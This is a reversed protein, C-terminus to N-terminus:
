DPCPSSVFPLLRVGAAYLQSSQYTTCSSSAPIDTVGEQVPKQDDGLCSLFVNEEYAAPVNVECGVTRHTDTMGVGYELPSPRVPTSRTAACDRPTRRRRTVFSRASSRRPRADPRALAYRLVRVNSGMFAHWTRSQTPLGHSSGMSTSYALAGIANGRQDQGGSDLEGGEDDGKINIKTQDIHGTVAVYSPTRIFQVATLAGAPIRPALSDAPDPQFSATAPAAYVRAGHGPKTCWVIM